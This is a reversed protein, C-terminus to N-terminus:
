VDEGIPHSEEEEPDNEEEDARHDVASQEPAPTSAVIVYGHGVTLNRIEDPDDTQYRAGNPAQLQTM